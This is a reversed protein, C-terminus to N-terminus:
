VTVHCLMVAWNKLFQEPAPLSSGVQSFNAGARATGNAKGDARLKKRLPSDDQLGEAGDIDSLDQEASAIGAEALLM